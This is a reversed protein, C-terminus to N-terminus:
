EFLVMVSVPTGGCHLKAPGVYFGYFVFVWLLCLYLFLVPVCFLSSRRGFAFRVSRQGERRRREPQEMVDKMKTNKSNQDNRLKPLKQHAVTLCKKIKLCKKIQSM